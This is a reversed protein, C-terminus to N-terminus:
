CFIRKGYLALLAADALGDCPKTRRGPKLNLNPFMRAAALVNRAKGSGAVGKFAEKTWFRPRPTSVRAGSVEALAVLAGYGEGTTFTSSLGQKPFAQQREIVWADAKKMVAEVAKHDLTAGRGSGIYPLPGNSVIEMTAVDLIAWWGAKGPDVGGVLSITKETKM